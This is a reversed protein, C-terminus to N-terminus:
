SDLCEEENNVMEMEHARVWQCAPFVYYWTAGNWEKMSQISCKREEWILVEDGARFEPSADDLERKLQELPIMREPHRKFEVLRWHIIILSKWEVLADWLCYLLSRLVKFPFLLYDIM